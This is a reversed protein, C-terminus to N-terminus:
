KKQEYYDECSLEYKHKLQELGELSGNIEMVGGRVM